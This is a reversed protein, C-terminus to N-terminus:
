SGMAAVRRSILSKKRAATNAHICAAKAAKDIRKHVAPLLAKAQAQDGAQVAENLKRVYTRMESKKTKNRVRRIEDQKLRKKASKIQPM